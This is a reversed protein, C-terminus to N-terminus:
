GSKDAGVSRAGQNTIRHIIIQNPRPSRNGYVEHLRLIERTYRGRLIVDFWFEYIYSASALKPGPFNALPHLKLRYFAVATAYVACCTVLGVVYNWTSLSRLLKFTAFHVNTPTSM